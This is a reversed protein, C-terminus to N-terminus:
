GLIENLEKVKTKIQELKVDNNEVKMSSIKNCINIISKGYNMDPCWKGSLSEVTKAEGHLYPCHRPDLTTGNVKYEVKGVLESYKPYGKAGAYLALHDIFASVGDEWCNFRTHATPDLDGGGKNGKLGCMNCYSPNLVRGFNFYGTEVFAQAIAIVPNVGKKEAEKYIIPVIAGCLFHPPNSNNKLTDLYSFVQELTATSKDLINM